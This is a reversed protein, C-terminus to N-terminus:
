SQARDQDAVELPELLRLQRLSEAVGIQGVPPLHREDDRAWTM